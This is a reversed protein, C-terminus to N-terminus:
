TIILIMRRGTAVIIIVIMTTTTIIITIITMTLINDTACGGCWRWGVARSVRGPCARLM